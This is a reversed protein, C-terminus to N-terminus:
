SVPSVVSASMRLTTISSNTLCGLSAEKVPWGMPEFRQRHLSDPSRSHLRQSSDPFGRAPFGPSSKSARHVGFRSSEKPWVEWWWWAALASHVSLHYVGAIQLALWQKLEALTLITGEKPITLSRKAQM